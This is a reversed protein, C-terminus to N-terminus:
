HTNCPFSPQRWTNGTTASTSFYFSLSVTFAILPYMRAEFANYHLVPSACFAGPIHIRAQGPAQVVDIISVGRWMCRASSFCPILPTRLRLSRDASYQWGSTASAPLLPPPNFRARDLPCDPINETQWFILHVSRGALHKACLVEPTNGPLPIVCYQFYLCFSCNKSKKRSCRTSSKRKRHDHRSHSELASTLVPPIFHVSLFYWQVCILPLNILRTGINIKQRLKVDLYIKYSSGPRPYPLSSDSLQPLIFGLVTRKFVPNVLPPISASVTLIFFSTPWLLHNEMLHFIKKM